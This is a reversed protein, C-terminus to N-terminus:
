LRRKGDNLDSVEDEEDELFMKDKSIEYFVSPDYESLEMLLEIIALKLIDKIVPIDELMILQPALKTPLALARQKFAMLMDNMVRKVDESRHLEGRIIKVELETKERRAKTWRATEVNNDLEEDPTAKDIQYEIYKKISNPLDYLGRGVRILAGEDVLQQIRRKGVGLIESIEATGVIYGKEMLDKHSM